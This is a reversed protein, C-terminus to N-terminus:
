AIAATLRQRTRALVLLVVLLVPVILYATRVDSVARLSVMVAPATLLAVGSALSGRAAGAHPSTPFREILVTLRSPYLPSAGLGAIGIGVIAVAANSVGWLMVFGVAICVVSPVLSRPPPWTSVVFRGIAMGIGWAAGGAAAKAKSLGLEEHLYTAAFFSFCFEVVICMALVAFPRWWEAIPPLAEHDVFPESDVVADSDADRRAAGAMRAIAVAAIVVPIVFGVVWGGGLAISLGVALPAAIAAVSSYANSRMLARETDDTRLTALVGPVLRVLYAVAIAMAIAGAASVVFWRTIGMVFLAAALAASGVVLGTRDAVPRATPRSVVILGWIVMAVGPLLSYIGAWEGIDDRLPPLVAGLGNLVWGLAAFGVYCALVTGTPKPPRVATEPM